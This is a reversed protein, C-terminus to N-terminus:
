ISINISNIAPIGEKKEEFYTFGDIMISANNPVKIQFNPFVLQENPVLLNTQTPKFHYHSMPDFHSLELREWLFTYNQKGQKASKYKGSFNFETKSDIKILITPSNITTNSINEVYFSGIILHSANEQYNLIVSQKFYCYPNNQQMPRDNEKLIARTKEQSKELDKEFHALKIKIRELSM